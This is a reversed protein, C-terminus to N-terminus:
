YELNKNIKRIAAKHREVDEAARDAERQFSEMEGKKALVMKLKEELDSKAHSYDLVAKSLDDYSYPRTSDDQPKM